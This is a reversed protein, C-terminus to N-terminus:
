KVGYVKKVVTHTLEDHFARKRDNFPIFFYIIGCSVLNSSVAIVLRLLAKQTDLKKGTNMNLVRIGLLLKGPTGGSFATSAVFYFYFFMIKLTLEIYLAIYAARNELFVATVKPIQQGWSSQTIHSLHLDLAGCISHLGTVALYALIGDVCVSALRISFAADPCNKFHEEEAKELEEAISTKATLRHLEM